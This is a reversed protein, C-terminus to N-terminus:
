ASVPETPSDPHAVGLSDYAYAASVLTMHHHWGVFSRGEFDQMGYNERLYRFAKAGHTYAGALEMLKRVDRQALNTLWIRRARHHAAPWEALIRHPVAGASSVTPLRILSSLVYNRRHEATRIPAHPGRPLLHQQVTTTRAAPRQGPAGALAPSPSGHIGPVVSFDPGVEVLYDQGRDDLGAILAAMDDLQKLDAVVPGLTIGHATADDVMDLVLQARSSARVTDPIRARERRRADKIWEDQLHLRWDIPVAAWGGTQILGIGVQCNITREEAPIFQRSVGVSHRGNKPIVAERVATYHPTMMNQAVEALRTRVPAWDWPSQNIFQQLSQTATETGEGLLRSAIRRISKKGTVEILGQLYVKAWRRQDARPLSEFVSRIFSGMPDDTRHSPFSYSSHAASM